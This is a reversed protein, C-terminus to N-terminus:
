RDARPAPSIGRLSPLKLREAFQHACARLYGSEPPLLLEQGHKRGGAGKKFKNMTDWLRRAAKDRPPYLSDGEMSPAFTPPGEGVGLECSDPYPSFPFFFRGGNVSVEINRETYELM